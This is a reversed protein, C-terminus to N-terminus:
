VSFRFAFSMAMLGGSERGREMKFRFIADLILDMTDVLEIDSM